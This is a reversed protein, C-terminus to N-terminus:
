KKSYSFSEAIFTNTDKDTRGVLTFQRDLGLKENLGQLSIKDDETTVAETFIYNTKRVVGSTFFITGDVTLQENLYSCGTLRFGAVNKYSEVLSNSILKELADEKLDELNEMIAKLTEPKYELSENTGSEVLVNVKASSDINITEVNGDAAKIKIALSNAGFRSKSVEVVEVTEKGLVIQNGPKLESASIEETKPATPDAESVGGGKKIHEKAELEKKVVDFYKDLQDNALEGKFYECLFTVNDDDKNKALYIFAPGNGQEMSWGKALEDAEAYKGREQPESMGIVLDKNNFSPAMTITKGNSYYEKFGIVLFCHFKQGKEDPIIKGESDVSVEKVSEDMAYTLIYDAKEERTMTNDAFKDIAASAKDKIKNGVQKAKKALTKGLLGLGGETLADLDAEDLKVIVRGEKQAALEQAEELSVCPAGAFTGDPNIVAYELIENNIEVGETITETLEEKVSEEETESFENMMARADSDSIPKKFESSNILKEFDEASTELEADEELQELLYNGEPKDFSEEKKEEEDESEFDIAELSDGLDIDDLDEDSTAEESTEEEAAEDTAETDKAASEDALEAFDEEEATEEPAAEGVKGILTYGSDNGCHQCVEEVNVTTPDDESEVVDEPNKYFLTMCQPCQIIYKGVYSTLLDEPSEADLDVIKEIRELKAKAIEAERADKADDLGETSSIDYYEEFLADFKSKRSFIETLAPKNAKIGKEAVPTDLDELAKFAAELDFKTISEKM